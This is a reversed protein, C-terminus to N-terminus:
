VEARNGYMKEPFIETNGISIRHYPYTKLMHFVFNHGIFGAGDTVVISM